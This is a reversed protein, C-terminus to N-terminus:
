MLAVDLIFLMDWFMHLHQHLKCMDKLILESVNPCVYLKGIGTLTGHLINTFLDCSDMWLSLIIVAIFMRDGSLLTWPAFMPGMQPRCPGPPGRTPGMFKTIQTPMVCVCTLQSPDNCSSTVCSKQHIWRGIWHHWRTVVLQNSILIPWLIRFFIHKVTYDANTIVLVMLDHVSLRRSVWYIHNRHYEGCYLYSLRLIMWDKYHSVRYRSLHNINFLCKTEQFGSTGVKNLVMMYRGHPASTRM